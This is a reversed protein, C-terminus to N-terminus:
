FVLLREKKQNFLWNRCHGDTIKSQHTFKHIKIFKGIKQSKKKSFYRLSHFYIFELFKYLM